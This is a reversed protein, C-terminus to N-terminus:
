VAELDKGRPVTVTPRRESVIVRVSVEVKPACLAVSESECLRACTVESVFKTVTGLFESSRNRM